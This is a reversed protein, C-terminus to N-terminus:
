TLDFAVGSALAKVFRARQYNGNLSIRPLGTPTEMSTSKLVGHRTTLALSFGTETAAKIERNTVANRGGYPYALTKPTSGTYEGIRIASQQLEQKLRGADVRALNPHTMTHVGLRALPDALLDNLEDATMAERDVISVPDIGAAAAALDLRRLLWTKM